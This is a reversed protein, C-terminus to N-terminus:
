ASACAAHARKSLVMLFIADASKRSTADDGHCDANDNNDHDYDIDDGLPRGKQEPLKVTITM